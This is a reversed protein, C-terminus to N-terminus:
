FRESKWWFYWSLCFQHALTIWRFPRMRVRWALGHELPQLGCMIDYMRTVGVGDVSNKPMKIHPEFRMTGRPGEVHCMKRPQHSLVAGLWRRKCQLSFGWRQLRPWGRTSSFCIRMTQSSFPVEGSFCSDITCAIRLQQDRDVFSVAIMWLLNPGGRELLKCIDHSIKPQWDLNTSSVKTM